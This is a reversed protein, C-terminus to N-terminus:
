KGEEDHFVEEDLFLGEIKALARRIRKSVADETMDLERAITKYTKDEIFRMVILQRDLEKLSSLFKDMDEGFGYKGRLIEYNETYVPNLLEIEASLGSPIERNMKKLINTMTNLTARYLYAKRANDEMSDWNECEMAVNMVVEQACDEAIAIDYYRSLAMKFIADYYTKTIRDIRGNVFPRISHKISKKM